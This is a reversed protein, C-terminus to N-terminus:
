DSHIPLRTPPIRYIPFARVVLRCAVLALAAAANPGSVEVALVASNRNAHHKGLGSNTADGKEGIALAAMSDHFGLVVAGSQLFSFTLRTHAILRRFTTPPFYKGYGHGVHHGGQWVFEQAEQFSRLLFGCDEALLSVGVVLERFSVCDDGVANHSVTV